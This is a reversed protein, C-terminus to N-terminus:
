AVKASMGHPEAALRGMDLEVEGYSRLSALHLDSDELFLNRSIGAAIREVGFKLASIGASCALSPMAAFTYSFINKLYPAGEPSKETFQFNPSLYPYAGLTASADERPPVYRDAWLAIRDSFRSLEPRRGLDVVFGTGAILFDFRESLGQHVIAVQGAEARVQPAVGLGLTFNPFRACRDFTEQPPPQNMDFITKMFAWKRADDLDGFHRLFGAFEMWRNPNVLPLARRRAFVHVSAAGCELATAANDFASAGAGIVAVARGSLRDFDIPESTHAYLHRPLAGAIAEPVTWTGCGEIGTALVVNRALLTTTEGGVTAHVSLLGGALPEIDFVETDSMVDIGAVSRVWCLYAQWDDRPIKHLGSWSERGHRAEWWARATLSPIGLDPGTVDKPTRLTHMRAFTSWPGELGAPNRDLVIVNTVQERLLRFAISVGSQGGGVVVADYATRGDRLKPIVWERSPYGLCRMEHRAREGLRELDDDEIPM